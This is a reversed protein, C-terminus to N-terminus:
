CAASGIIVSGPYLQLIREEVFPSDSFVVAPATDAPLPIHARDPSGLRCSQATSCWRQHHFNFTQISSTVRDLVQCSIQGPGVVKMTTVLNGRPDQEIGADCSLSPLRSVMRFRVNLQAVPEVELDRLLWLAASVNGPLRVCSSVKVKAQLESMPQLAIKVPSIDVESSTSIIRGKLPNNSMNVLRVSREGDPVTLINVVYRRDALFAYQGTDDLHRIGNILYCYCYEGPELRLAAHFGNGRNRVMAYRIWDGTASRLLLLPRAGRAAKIRFSTEGRLPLRGLEIHAPDFFAVRDNAM